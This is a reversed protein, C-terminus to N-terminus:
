TLRLLERRERAHAAGVMALAADGASVYGIGAFTWDGVLLTM